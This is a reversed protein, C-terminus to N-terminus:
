MRNTPARLSLKDGCYWTGLTAILTPAGTLGRVAGVVAHVDADVVYVTRVGQLQGPYTCSDFPLSDGPSVKLDHAAPVRPKQGPALLGPRLAAAVDDKSPEVTGPENGPDGTPGEAKTARQRQERQGHRLM